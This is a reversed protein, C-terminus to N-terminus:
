EELWFAELVTVEVPDSALIYCKEHEIKNEIMDTFWDSPELTKNKTSEHTLLGRGGKETVGHIRLLLWWVYLLM